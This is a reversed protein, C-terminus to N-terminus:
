SMKGNQWKFEISMKHKYIILIENVANVLMLIKEANSRDDASSEDRYIVECRVSSLYM